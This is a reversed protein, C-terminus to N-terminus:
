KFKGFLRKFFGGKQPEVKSGDVGNAPAQAAVAPPVPEEKAEAVPAPFAVNLRSVEEEITSVQPVHTVEAAQTTMAETKAEAVVEVATQGGSMTAVERIQPIESIESIEPAEASRAEAVHQLDSGGGRRQFFVDNYSAITQVGVQAPGQPAGPELAVSAPAGAAKAKEARARNLPDDGLRRPM